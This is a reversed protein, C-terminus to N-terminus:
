VSGYDEWEWREITKKAKKSKWSNEVYDAIHQRDEESQDHIALKGLTPKLGLSHLECKGDKWFTCGEVSATQWPANVGEYGRLAPKLMDEGGLFGDFMLQNGYGSDMLAEMDSPTGFCPAHCM